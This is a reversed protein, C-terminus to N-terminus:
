QKRRRRKSTNSAPLSSFFDEIRKSGTEIIGRVSGDKTNLHSGDDYFAHKSADKASIQWWTKTLDILMRGQQTDVVRKRKPGKLLSNETIYRMVKGLRDLHLWQQCQPDVNHHYFHELVSSANWPPLDGGVIRRMEEYKAAVEEALAAPDTKAMGKTIVDMIDQIYVSPIAVDGGGGIANEGIYRCGFCQTRVIPPGLVSRLEEIDPMAAPGNDEDLEEEEEEDETSNPEEISHHLARDLESRRVQSRFVEDRSGFYHSSAM